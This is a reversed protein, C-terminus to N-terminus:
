WGDGPESTEKSQGQVTHQLKMAVWMSSCCHIVTQLQVQSPLTRTSHKVQAGPLCCVERLPSDTHCM